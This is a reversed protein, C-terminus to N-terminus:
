LAIDDDVQRTQMQPRHEKQVVQAGGAAWLRRDGVFGETQANFAPGKNGTGSGTVADLEQNMATDTKAEELYLCNQNLDAVVEDAQDLWTQMGARNDINLPQQLGDRKQQQRRIASEDDVGDKGDKDSECCKCCGKYRLFALLLLLAIVVLPIALALGLGGAYDDTYYVTVNIIEVNCEYHATLNFKVFKQDVSDKQQNPVFMRIRTVAYEMSNSTLILGRKTYNPLFYAPRGPEQFLPSMVEIFRLITSNFFTNNYGVTVKTFEVDILLQTVLLDGVDLSVNLGYFKVVSKTQNTANCNMIFTCERSFYNYPNNDCVRTDISRDDLTKNYETVWNVDWSKNYKNTGNYSWPGTDSINSLVPLPCMHQRGPTSKEPCLSLSPTRTPAGFVLSAAFVVVALHTLVLNATKWTSM